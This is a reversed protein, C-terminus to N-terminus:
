NYILTAARHIFIGKMFTPALILQGSNIKILRDVDL